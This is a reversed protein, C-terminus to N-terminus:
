SEAIWRIWVEDPNEPVIVSCCLENELIQKLGYCCALGGTLVIPNELAKEMTELGLSALFSRVASAIRKETEEIAPWIQDAPFCLRVYGQKQEFATCCLNPNRNQWFAASAAEKLACADESSLMSKYRRGIMAAIARDIQLGAEKCSKSKQVQRNDILSYITQSAGAHIHLYMERKKPMVPQEFRLYALRQQKAMLAFQNQMAADPISSCALIAGPQFMFRDAPMLAFLSDCLPRPDATIKGQRMPYILDSGSTEWFAELADQGTKSPNSKLYCSRLKMIKRTKPDYVRFFHSGADIIYQKELM